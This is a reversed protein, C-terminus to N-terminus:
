TAVPVTTTMMTTTLMMKKMMLVTPHLATGALQQDLVAILGRNGVFAFRGIIKDRFTAQAGHARGYVFLMESCAARRYLDKWSERVPDPERRKM